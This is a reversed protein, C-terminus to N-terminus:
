RPPRMRRLMREKFEEASPIDSDRQTTGRETKGPNRKKGNRPEEVDPCDMEPCDMEPDSNGTFRDPDIKPKMSDGGSSEHTAPGENRQITIDTSNGDRTIIKQGEPTKIVKTSKPGSGGSQKIVATSGGQQHVDTAYVTMSCTMGLLMSIFFQFIAKVPSM